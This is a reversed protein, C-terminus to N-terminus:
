AHGFLERESEILKDLHRHLVTCALPSLHAKIRTTSDSLLGQRFLALKTCVILHDLTQMEFVILPLISNFIERAVSKDDNTVYQNWIEVLMRTAECSPIIGVGGADLVDLFNIGAQGGFVQVASNKFVNRLEFVADCAPLAETKIYKVNAIEAAIREFVSAEIKTGIYQPADQIMVDAGSAAESVAHFFDFLFSLSEPEISPPAVMIVTAGKDMAHRALSVSNLKSDSSVGVVVPVQGNVTALVNETVAFREEISLLDAEGALGLTSIGMAGCSIQADVLRPIDQWAIEGNNKFPTPLMPFIGELCEWGKANNM